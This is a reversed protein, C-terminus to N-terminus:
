VNNQTKLKYKTNIDCGDNAAINPAFTRCKM